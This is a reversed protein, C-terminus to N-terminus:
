EVPNRQQSSISELQDFTRSRGAASGGPPGHGRISGREVSRKRGLQAVANVQGRGTRESYLGDSSDFAQMAEFM